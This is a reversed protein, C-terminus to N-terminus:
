RSNWRRIRGHRGRPPTARGEKAGASTESKAQPGRPASQRWRTLLEALRTQMRELDSVIAAHLRDDTPATQEDTTYDQNGSDGLRELEIHSEGRESTEADVLGLEIEPRRRPRPFFPMWQEFVSQLYLEEEALGKSEEETVPRARSANTLVLGALVMRSLAQFTDHLLDNRTDPRRFRTWPNAEPALRGLVEVANRYGGLPDAPEPLARRHTWLKLILEVARAESAGKAPGVARDAEAM